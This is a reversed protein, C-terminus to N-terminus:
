FFLLNMHTFFIYHKGYLCYLESAQISNTVFLAFPFRFGSTGLFLLQLVYNCSTEGSYCSKRYSM